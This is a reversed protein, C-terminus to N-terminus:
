DIGDDGFRGEADRSLLLVVAKCLLGTRDKFCCKTWSAARRDGFSCVFAAKVVNNNNLATSQLVAELGLRHCFDKRFVPSSPNSINVASLLKFSTWLLISAARCTTALNSGRYGRFDLFNSRWAKAKTFSLPEHNRTQLKNQLYNRGCCKTHNNTCVSTATPIANV